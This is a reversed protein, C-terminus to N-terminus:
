PDAYVWALIEPPDHCGDAADSWRALMFTGGGPAEVAQGAPAFVEEGGRSVFADIYQTNATCGQVVTVQCSPRLKWGFAEHRHSTESAVWIDRGAKRLAVEVRAMFAYSDIQLIAGLSDGTDIPPAVLPSPVVYRIEYRGGQADEFVLVGNTESSRRHETVRAEVDVEFPLSVFPVDLHFPGGGPQERACAGVGAGGDGGM